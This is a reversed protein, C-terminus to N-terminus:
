FRVHTRISCRPGHTHPVLVKHTIKHGLVWVKITRTEYHGPRVCVKETQTEYHGPVWEIRTEYVPGINCHIGVSVGSHGRHNNHHVSLNGLTWSFGWRAHRTNHRDRHNRSAHHGGHRDNHLSNRHRIQVPTSFRHNRREHSSRRVKPHGRHGFNYAKVHRRDHGRHGYSERQAGRHGRSERQVAHRDENHGREREASAPTAFSGVALICTVAGIALRLKRTNELM